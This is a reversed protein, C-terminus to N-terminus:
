GLYAIIKGDDTFDNSLAQQNATLFDAGTATLTDLNIVGVARWKPSLKGSSIFMPVSLTCKIERTKSLQWPLLRFQNLPLWKEYIKLKRPGLTRMDVLTPNRSKLAKGAVGQWSTLLINTDSHSPAFGDSWTWSFLRIFPLFWRRRAHLVSIRVEPPLTARWGTKLKELYLFRFAKFEREPLYYEFVDHLLVIICGLITLGLRVKFEVAQKPGELQTIILNIKVFDEPRGPVGVWNLISYPLTLIPGILLLLQSFQRILIKAM